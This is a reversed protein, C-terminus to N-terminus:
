SLKSLVTSLKWDYKKGYESEKRAKDTASKIASVSFASLSKAERLHRKIIEGFAKTTNLHSLDVDQSKQELYYGIIQIHKQASSKMNKIYENTDVITPEVVKDLRDKKNEKKQRHVDHVLVPAEPASTQINVPADPAGTIDEFVVEIETIKGQKKKTEIVGFLSLQLVADIVARNSVGTAKVIQSIALKDKKKHYGLTKRLIFMLVKFEPMSLKYILEDLVVNPIQTYNPKQLKM